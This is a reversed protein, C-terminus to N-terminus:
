GSEDKDRKYGGEWAPSLSGPSLSPQTPPLSLFCVAKCKELDGSLEM